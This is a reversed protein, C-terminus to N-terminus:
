SYACGDVDMADTCTACGIVFPRYLQPSGLGIASYRRIPLASQYEVEGAGRKPGIAAAAHHMLGKHFWSHPIVILGHHGVLVVYVIHGKSFDRWVTRGTAFDFM